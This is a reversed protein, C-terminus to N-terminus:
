LTNGSDGQMHIYQEVGHGSVTSVLSRMQIFFEL